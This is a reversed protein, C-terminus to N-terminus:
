AQPWQYHVVPHRAATVEDLRLVQTTHPCSRIDEPDALARQHIELFAHLLEDLSEKSETETPEVMLAEHVILPFYMTPPHIGYDLLAKAVDMATVHVDAKEPELTMVFEHMCTRDFAMKYVGSLKKRLYNANLVAGRSAALIGEPGLSLVYALAKVVVLFNGHFARVRGISQEPQHWRYGEPGEEVTQGPLFPALFAKCGAPGSGPGGGGHPTSFTKHLNLHVVDFGMDGPRAVGMVANLNAGDYYCLGGADHVIQTIELIQPDFLGVTNPNTLMLGATDPGAAARLKELDVLGDPGSPLNVVEFGAMTASAPNTGHASDPVLIKKRATDGRSEHYAKILLLGTFEGHAGAAPQFTMADMGTIECFVQQAKYLVELCGQATHEPQLPHVGTFGPLAALEDNLKPNYKMTCSGLPYCGNNVGHTAAALRTYHRSIDNESVEPLRPPATRLKSPAVQPVDCDPLLSCGRGAVSQEFILEM